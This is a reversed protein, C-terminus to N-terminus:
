SYMECVVFIACMDSLRLHDFKVGTEVAWPETWNTRSHTRSDGTRVHVCTNETANWEDVEEKVLVTDQVGNSINISEALSVDCYKMLVHLSVSSVCM